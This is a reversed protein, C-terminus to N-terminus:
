GAPAQAAAGGGGFGCEKSAAQFAPSSPDIGSSNSIRIGVGVGGNPGTQFTPDPFNPVGHSRMCRSMALAQAKVKATQAATPTGGGPMYSRCDKMASQFAPGNVEVGNVKTSTPTQQVQLNFRGGTPDPFNPVGHSRMCTAFELAKNSSADSSQGGSANTAPGSPDSSGCAAVGLAVVLLSLTIITFRM